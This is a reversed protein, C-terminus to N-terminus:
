YEETILSHWYKNNARFCGRWRGDISSYGDYYIIGDKVGQIWMNFSIPKGFCIKDKNCIFFGNQNFKRNIFEELTKKEWKCIIHDKGNKYYDDLCEDKYERTDHNYNYIIELSNDDKVIMKQGDVDYKKIKWGGIRKEDKKRTNQRYMNNWLEERKSKNAVRSIGKFSEGKINFYDPEKDVFTTVGVKTDCKMEYGFIDPENKGNPKIGMAEELCHGEKGCHKENKSSTDFQKGKVNKEWRTIIEKKGDEINKSPEVKEEIKEIIDNMISKIIKKNKFEKVKMNLSNKDEKTMKDRPLEYADVGCRVWRDDPPPYKDM